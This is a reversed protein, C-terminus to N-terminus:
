SVPRNRLLSLAICRIGDLQAKVHKDDSEMKRPMVRVFTHGPHTLRSSQV